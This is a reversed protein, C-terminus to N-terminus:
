KGYLAGGGELYFDLDSFIVASFGGNIHIFNASFVSVASGGDFSVSDSIPKGNISMVGNDTIRLLYGNLRINATHIVSHQLYHGGTSVGDALRLDGTMDDYFITGQEGNFDDLGISNVRGAKIKRVAM